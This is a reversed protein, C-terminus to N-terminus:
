AIPGPVPTLPEREACDLQYSGIGIVVQRRLPDDKTDRRVIFGAVPDGQGGAELEGIVWGHDPLSLAPGDCQQGPVIRGCLTSLRGTALLLASTRFRVAGLCIALLRKSLGHSLRGKLGRTSRSGCQSGGPRIADFSAPHARTM